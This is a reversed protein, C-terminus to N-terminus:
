TTAPTGGEPSYQASGFGLICVFIMPLFILGLATGAVRGFRNSIEIMVLVTIVINVVPVFFLIGWWTPKGALECLFFLNVIPILGLIGPIGGKGFMRWLGICFVVLIILYIGIPIALAEAMEGGSMDPMGDYRTDTDGGQSDILPNTQM